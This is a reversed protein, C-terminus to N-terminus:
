NESYGPFSFDKPEEHTSNYKRLAKHIKDMYPDWWWSERMGTVSVIFALKEESFEGLVYESMDWTNPKYYRDKVNFRCILQEKAGPEFPSESNLDFTLGITYEGRKAPKHIEILISDKLSNAKFYYYQLPRVDAKLTSDQGEILVTKLYFQQREPYQVGLITVPLKIEHILLSDGYYFPTDWGYEDKIIKHAEAFNFDVSMAEPEMGFQISSKVANYVFPEEKQCGAALLALLLTILPLKYRNTM